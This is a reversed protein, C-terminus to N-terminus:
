PGYSKVPLLVTIPDKCHLQSGGTCCSLVLALSLTFAVSPLTRRDDTLLLHCHCDTLHRM